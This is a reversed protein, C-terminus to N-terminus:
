RTSERILLKPNLFVGEQRMDRTAIADIIFNVCTVGLTYMPVAVTTLRPNSHEGLELGTSGVVSIDKPVNFGMRKSAEIAGVALHDAAAFIADPRGCERLFQETVNAGCLITDSNYWGDWTEAYRIEFSEPGFGREKLTATFGEILELKSVTGDMHDGMIFFTRHGSEILHEAALKGSLRYDVTVFNYTQETVLKNITVWPLELENLFEFLRWREERSANLPFVIFGSVQNKATELLKINEESGSTSRSIITLFRGMTGAQSHIGSFVCGSWRPTMYEMRDGLELNQEKPFPHMLVGINQRVFEPVKEEKMLTLYDKAVFTGKGREVTVIGHKSLEQLATRVTEISVDFQESFEKISPLQHEVPLREKIIQRKIADAIQVSYPIISSKKIGDVNAM